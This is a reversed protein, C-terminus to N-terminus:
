SPLAASLQQTHWHGDPLQHASNHHNGFGMLFNNTIQLIYMQIRVDARRASTGRYAFSAPTSHRRLSVLHPVIATWGDCDKLQGIPDDKM